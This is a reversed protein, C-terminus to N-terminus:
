EEDEEDSTGTLESMAAFHAPDEANMLDLLDRLVPGGESLHSLDHAPEGITDAHSYTHMFRLIRSKKAPDFKVREVKQRLDGSMQPYRFALFAELLRRAMNPLVYHEQLSQQTSDAAALSVQAFLYHYESEFKELLPDLATLRSTRGDGSRTCDLMYFRAPRRAPDKRQGKVHHFWNRVQRFFTFNHTLIFIQGIESTRDQIFGFALFLANSDLSSVPDDLVVIGNKRDFRQDQLTKLFYLLAIATAEGESLSTAAIGGRTISYGTDKVALKLDSHGLYRELDENLEEAPRHHEILQQETDRVEDAVKRLNADAAKVQGSLADCETKLRVFEDLAEEVVGAEFREGAHTRRAALDDRADNHRQIVDNIQRIDEPDVTPLDIQLQTSVFVRSTKNQLAGRLAEFWACGTKASERARQEAVQYESALDDLLEARRPLPPPDWRGIAGEIRDIANNIDAVLRDHEANFHLELAAIREPPLSQGCFQCVDAGLHRHVELGARVWGSLEADNSIEAIAAAVVSRELIQSVLTTATEVEPLLEPLVALKDKSTSRFQVLLQARADDAVRHDARDSAHAMQEAHSQFRGKDYSTYRPLDASRLSERVLRAHSVCLQDLERSAQGLKTRLGSLRRGDQDHERRLQNLREQLRVNEAGLVYIPAVDSGNVPFVSERIFDRNFVRIPVTAGDFAAGSMEGTDLVLTASGATVSQRQELMRLLTSLTTKGTGNAGYILNYKGFDALDNPWSFDRFIGYGRLTSIRRITTM